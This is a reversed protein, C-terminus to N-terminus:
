IVVEGTAFVPGQDCVKLSKAGTEDGRVHCVCAYCAGMGCAMRAEMSIYARPHTEFKTDVAKLLGNAGCAYVADPTYKELAKEILLGVHGHVGFSGDDTSFYTEGLREFEERYFIVDESAFGILHVVKVGKAVLEKSLEYLPPIGIGGGIIFATQGKKVVEPNFGNGLPGMVDLKDGVTMESFYQTGTGEVRYIIKCTEEAKNIECLSIPRRLVLDQRPVRIHIFQGPQNMNQVLKGQLVMEYIRPAIKQQSVVTMVEQLIM